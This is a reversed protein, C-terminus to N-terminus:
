SVLDGLGARTMAAPADALVAGDLVLADPWRSPTTRKVGNRLLVSQDDAFGNVSAATQVIVHILGLRHAVVKGIDALTGSGVTVLAGPALAAVASVAHDVTPEDAHVLGGGRSTSLTVLRGASRPALVGLVVDLVDREGAAKPVDDSLVAVTGDASGGLRALVNPLASVAAPGSVVERLGVPRLQEAEGAADALRRVDALDDVEVLTPSTM